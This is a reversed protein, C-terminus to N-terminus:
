SPPRVPGMPLRVHFTTGRGLESDVWIAGGHLIAIERAISLGLGLGTKRGRGDVRVFPEFIARLKEPPIGPGDDSVELHMTTDSAPTLRLRVASAEGAYKVANGVLNTLMQNIREPDWSGWLATPGEVGVRLEPHLTRFQEVLERVVVMLDCVRPELKLQGAKVSSLDYLDGVLRSMREVQADIRGLTQKLPQPEGDSNLRSALYVFGKLASLPNRLEHSVLSLIEDKRRAVQEAAAKEARLRELEVTAHHAEVLSHEYFTVISLEAAILAALLFGNPARVGSGDLAAVVFFLAVAVTAYGIVLPRQRVLLAAVLMTLLFVPWLPSFAGGTFRTALADLILDSVIQVHALYRMGREHASPSGRWRRLLAAYVANLALAVGVLAGLPRWAPLSIALLRQVLAFFGALVLPVIWRLRTFWVLRIWLEDAEDLARVAPAAM